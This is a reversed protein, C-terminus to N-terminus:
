NFASIAEQRRNQILLWKPSEPSFYLMGFHSIGSLVTLGFFLNFWNKNLYLFYLPIITMSLSDFGTLFGSAVAKHKTELLDYLWGYCGSNKLQCAGMVAYCILRIYFVPIFIIFLQMLIHISGFIAQTKRRGWKDPLRVFLMGALGFAFVYATVILSIKSRSVCM